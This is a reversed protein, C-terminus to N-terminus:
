AVSLHPRFKPPLGAERRPLWEQGGMALGHKFSSSGGVARQAAGVSSIAEAPRGIVRSVCAAAFLLVKEPAVVEGFEVASAGRVLAPKM